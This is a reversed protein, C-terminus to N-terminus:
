VQEVGLREAQVTEGDHIMRTAKLVIVKAKVPSFRITQLIPNNEINSFEGKQVLTTATEPTDGAYLEYTAILGKGESDPLYHFACVHRDAGLNLVFSDGTNEQEFAVSPFNERQAEIVRDSGEGAYFAEINNFCLCARADDISIRLGEANVTLFRLIRKYGITTTEENLTVPKWAGNELYEVHFSKVRQGLPIYEQLMLRNVPQSKFRFAISATRVSDATAWYTDYNDDTLHSATYRGGRENSVEPVIGKLINHALERQIIQRFGVLSASDTPHILGRKDPPINLIFTANHGVNRYYLDALEEPTKVKDNQSDHYFWGPRISVDCEAAIWKTGDAHGYQLEKGHAYGPYVDEFRLFSWNTASAYGKENGVWRCGPGGDSFIIAQPQNKLIHAYIEPFNYYTRRDIQRTERAGGYYGDGGNAGDLWFEFLEGYRTTLEEIQKHYYAVYEPTGYTSQNRDWPSLYLGMKLGYKDCAKRLAALIDGKGDLYPTNKISYDTLDTQWLCFGDHHKATLVVAKLGAEKFIRVWQECDLREPNFVSLETDGYGWERDAFTNLGLHIFAYTELKQWEVQYTTPVPGIPEPAAVESAPNCSVM